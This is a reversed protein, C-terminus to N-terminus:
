DDVEYHIGLFNYLHCLFDVSSVPVQIKEYSYTYVCSITGDSLYDSSKILKGAEDYTYITIDNSNLNISKDLKGIENYSNQIHNTVVVGSDLDITSYTYNSVRGSADYTYETTTERNPLLDSMKSKVINNENNYSYSTITRINGGIFGIYEVRNGSENYRSDFHTGDNCIDGWSMDKYAITTRSIRNNSNIGLIEISISDDIPRDLNKILNSWKRALQDDHEKGFDLYQLINEYDYIYVTQDLSQTDEYFITYEQAAVTGDDCLEYCILSGGDSFSLEQKTAIYITQTLKQNDTKLSPSSTNESSSTETNGCGVCGLFYLFCLVLYHLKKM